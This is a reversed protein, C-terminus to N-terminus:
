SSRTPRSSEASVAATPRPPGWFRYCFGFLVQVLSKFGVEIKFRLSYTNVITAASLELHASVFIARHGQKSVITSSRPIGIAAVAPLRPIAGM